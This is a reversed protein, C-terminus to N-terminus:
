RRMRVRFRPAAVPGQSVRQWRRDVLEYARRRAELIEYQSRSMKGKGTGKLSFFLKRKEFREQRLRLHPSSLESRRFTLSSRRQAEQTAASQQHRRRARGLERCWDVFRYAVWGEANKHDKM